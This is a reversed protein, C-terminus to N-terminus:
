AGVVEVAESELWQGLEFGDWIVKVKDNWTRVVTGVHAPVIDREAIYEVRQGTNHEPEMPVKSILFAKLGEAITEILSM